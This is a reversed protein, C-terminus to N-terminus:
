SIISHLLTQPHYKTINIHLITYFMNTKRVKIVTQRVPVNVNVVGQIQDHTWMTNPIICEEVTARRTSTGALPLLSFAVKGVPWYVDKSFTPTEIVSSVASAPQQLSLWGSTATVASTSMIVNRSQIFFNRRNSQNDNKKNNNMTTTTTTTTLTTTYDYEEEDNDSLKEGLRCCCSSSQHSVANRAAFFTLKGSCTSFSDSTTVLSLWLFVRSILTMMMSGEILM